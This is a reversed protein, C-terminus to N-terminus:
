EPNNEICKIFWGLLSIAKFMEPAIRTSVFGLRREM